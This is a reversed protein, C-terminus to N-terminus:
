PENGPEDDASAGPKLISQLINKLVTENLKGAALVEQIDTRILLKGLGLDIDSELESLIETKSQTTSTIESISSERTKVTSAVTPVATRKTNDSTHSIAVTNAMGTLLSDDGKDIQESSNDKHNEMVDLNTVTIRHFKDEDDDLEFNSDELEEDGFTQYNNNLGRMGQKFAELVGDGYQDVLVNKLTNACQTAKTKFASHFVLSYNEQTIDPHWDKQFHRFVPDKNGPMMIELIAEGISKGNLCELKMNPDKIDTQVTDSNGKMTTHMELRKTIKQKNSESLNKELQPVFKMQAGGPWTPYADINGHEDTVNKGYIEYLHKRAPGVHEKKTVFVTLGAPAWKHKIRSQERHQLDKSRNVADKWLRQSVRQIYINQYSVRIGKFGTVNELEKNIERIDQKETSGMCFGISWCQETQTPFDKITLTNLVVRGWRDHFIEPTDIDFTVNVRWKYNRGTTVQKIYRGQMPGRLYQILSDYPLKKVQDKSFVTPLPKEMKWPLIGFKPDIRQGEQLCLAVAERLAKEQNEGDNPGAIKITVNFLVALRRTHKQMIREFTVGKIADAFSVDTKKPFIQDVTTQKTRENKPNEEQIARAVEKCTTNMEVEKIATKYPNTGKPTAPMPPTVKSTKFHKTIKETTTKGSGTKKVPPSHPEKGSSAAKVVSEAKNLWQQNASFATKALKKQQSKGHEKDETKKFVSGAQVSQKIQEKWRSPNKDSGEAQKNKKTKEVQEQQLQLLAPEKAKIKKQWPNILEKCKRGKNVMVAESIFDDSPDRLPSTRGSYMHYWRGKVQYIEKPNADNWLATALKMEEETWFEEDESDDDIANEESDNQDDPKEDVEVIDTNTPEDMEVDDDQVHPDALMDEDEDDSDLEVMFNVDRRGKKKKPTPLKKLVSDDESSETAIDNEMKRNDKDIDMTDESDGSLVIIEKKPNRKRKPPSNRKTMAAIMEEKKVTVSKFGENKEGKRGKTSALENPMTTKSKNHKRHRVEKWDNDCTGNPPSKVM